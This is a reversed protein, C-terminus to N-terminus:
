LAKSYTICTLHVLLICQPSVCQLWPENKICPYKFLICKREIRQKYLHPFSVLMVPCNAKIYNVM